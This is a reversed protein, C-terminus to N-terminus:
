AGTAWGRELVVVTQGGADSGATGGTRAVYEVIRLGLERAFAALMPREIFTNMHPLSGSEEASVTGAFTPWHDLAGLELFSMVIRGGPKLVRVADRLYRFGETHSLHTLVSFFCVMDASGAPMPISIETHLVFRFDHRARSAAYSLLAPVVDTGVYHGPWDRLRSALRGSGCGVDVLTMGGLLGARELLAREAAGVADYAGGVAASMAADTDMTRTLSDVLAEYSAVYHPKEARRAPAGAPLPLATGAGVDAVVPADLTAHRVILPKANELTFRVHRTTWDMMAGYYPDGARVWTMHRALFEATDAPHPDHPFRGRSASEHHIAVVQGVYCAGRGRAAARLCLDTDNFGVALAEDYGGLEAFLASPMAMLAGTVASFRRTATLSGLYGPAREGSALRSPVGKFAHDAAGGLGVVVGGHQVIGDPYLLCAGAIGVGDFSLASVLADLWDDSVLEVDNNMFVLHTPEARARIAAVGWNNIAAFNWPGAYRLRTIEGRAEREALLDLTAADDSAHDIVYVDHQTRNAARRAAISDLCARLLAGQNKTPIVIAARAPPLPPTVVYTNFAPGPRVTAAAWGFRQGVFARLSALTNATVDAHRQAGLGTDHTRWYYGVVPVHAITRARQLCRLLYDVDQSIRLQEDFGGAALALTRRVFVPHVVYPHSLFHLLDFAGRSSVVSVRSAERDVHAEDFFVIDAPREAMALGCLEVLSEDLLDDHDVIAVYDSAAARLGANCAASVGQASPLEVIRVRPRKGDVARRLSDALDPQPGDLVLIVAFDPQTQARMSALLADLWAAPPHFVPVVLTLTPAADPKAGGALLRGRIDHTLARHRDRFERLEVFPARDVTPGEAVRDVAALVGRIGGEAWARRAGQWQRALTARDVGRLATRLRRAIGGARWRLLSAHRLSVHRVTLVGPVVTPDFRLRLADQRLLFRAIRRPGEHRFHLPVVQTANFGAGTDAFIMPQELAVSGAALDFAFEYLGRPFAAGGTDLLFQPDSGTLLWRGQGADSAAVDVDNLPQLRPAQRREM